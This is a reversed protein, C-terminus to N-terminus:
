AEGGSGPGAGAGAKVDLAEVPTVRSAEAGRHLFAWLVVGAFAVFLVGGEVIGAAFFLASLTLLPIVTLVKGAM